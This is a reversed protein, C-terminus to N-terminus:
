PNRTVGLSLFKRPLGSFDGKLQVQMHDYLLGSTTTPAGVGESSWGTLNTSGLIDFTVGNAQKSRFYDVTAPSATPQGNFMDLGDAKTPDLGLYYEALTTFGAADGWVTAEKNTDNLDDASFFRSKWDDIDVPTSAGDSLMGLSVRVEDIYGQFNGVKLSWPYEKSEPAMSATGEGILTGDIYLQLKSGTPVFVIQVHMWENLKWAPQVSPTEVVDGYKYRLAPATNSGHRRLFISNNESQHFQIFDFKGSPGLDEVYILADITLGETFMPSVASEHFVAHFRDGRGGIQLAQGKPSAMRSVNTASTAANEYERLHYLNQKSNQLDGDFHYHAITGLATDLKEGSSPHGLMHKPDNSPTGGDSGSCSNLTTLDRIYISRFEIRDYNFEGLGESQLAITGSSAYDTPHITYDATVVGNIEIILENNDVLIRM